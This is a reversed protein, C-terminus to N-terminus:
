RRRWATMSRKPAAPKLFGIGSCIRVNVATSCRTTGGVLCGAKRCAKRQAQSDRGWYRCQDCSSGSRCIYCGDALAGAPLTITAGVLILCCALLRTCRSLM